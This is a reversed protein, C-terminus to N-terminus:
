IGGEEIQVQSPNPTYCPDGLPVISGTGGNLYLSKTTELMNSGVKYIGIIVSTPLNVAGNVNDRYLRLQIDYTSSSAGNSVMTIKFDGGVIHTAHLEFTLFFLTIIAFFIRYFHTM